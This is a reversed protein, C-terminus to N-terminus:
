DTSELIAIRINTARCYMRSTAISKKFMIDASILLTMNNFQHLTEFPLTIITGDSRQLTINYPSYYTDLKTDFGPYSWASKCEAINLINNFQVEVPWVYGTINDSQIWKNLLINQSIYDDSINMM